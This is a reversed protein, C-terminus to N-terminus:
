NSDCVCKSSIIRLLQHLIALSWTWVCVYEWASSTRQAIHSQQRSGNNNNNSINSGHLESLNNVGFLLQFGETMKHESLYEANKNNLHSIEGSEFSISYITHIQQSHYIQSSDNENRDEEASDIHARLPWIYRQRERDTHTHTFTLTYPRM